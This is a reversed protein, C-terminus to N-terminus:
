LVVQGQGGGPGVGAVDQGGREPHVLGVAQDGGGDRQHNEVQHGEQEQGGEVSESEAFDPLAAVLKVDGVPTASIQTLKWNLCDTTHFNERVYFVSGCFWLVSRSFNIDQEEKKKSRRVAIM